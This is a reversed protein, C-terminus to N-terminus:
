LELKDAEDISLYQFDMTLSILHLEFIHIGLMGCVETTHHMRGVTM